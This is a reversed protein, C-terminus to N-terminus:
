LGRTDLEEARFFRYFSTEERVHVQEADVFILAPGIFDYYFQEDAGDFRFYTLVILYHSRVQSRRYSAGAPILHYERLAQRRMLNFLYGLGFVPDIPRYTGLRQDRTGRTWTLTFAQLCVCVYYRFSIPVIELQENGAVRNYATM